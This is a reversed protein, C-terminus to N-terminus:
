GLVRKILGMLRGPDCCAPKDLMGDILDELAERDFIPTLVERPIASIVIIKPRKERPRFSRIIEIGTVEGELKVDVLILAYECAAIKALAEKATTAYDARYDELQLMDQLNLCIEIEDDIILIAGTEVRESM